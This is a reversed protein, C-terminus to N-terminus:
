NKLNKINKLADWRPDATEDTNDDSSKDESTYVLAIEDEYEEEDQFRPHLKKLPVALTLYEYINAEVNISEQSNPIVWIDDRSNDFEEGYKLILHEKIDIPHDFSELSRDCILQLVGEIKFDVSILTEKKDLVVTCNGHGHEIVSDEVSEFLKEDFAFDFTHIGLKLGYINIRYQKNEKMKGRFLFHTRLNLFKNGIISIKDPIKPLRTLKESATAYFDYFTSITNSYLLALSLPPLTVLTTYM